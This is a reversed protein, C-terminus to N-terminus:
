FSHAYPTTPPAEDPTNPVVQIQVPTQQKRKKQRKSPAPEYPPEEPAAKRKSKKSTAPSSVSTPTPVPERILLQQSRTRRRPPINQLVQIKQVPKNTGKKVVVVSKAVDNLETPKEDSDSESLEIIDYDIRISGRISFKSIRADIAISNSSSLLGM